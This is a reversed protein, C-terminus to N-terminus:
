QNSLSYRSFSKLLAHFFSSFASRRFCERRPSASSARTILPASPARLLLFGSALCLSRAHNDAGLRACFFFASALAAARLFVRRSSRRRLRACSFFGSALCLFRAHHTILPASPASSFFVLALRLFRRHRAAGFARAPFFVSALCLFRGCAAAAPAGCVAAAFPRRLRGAGHIGSLLEQHSEWAM